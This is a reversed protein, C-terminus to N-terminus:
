RVRHGPFLTERQQHNQIVKSFILDNTALFGIVIAAKKAGSAFKGTTIITGGPAGFWHLVGHLADLVPRNITGARRKV